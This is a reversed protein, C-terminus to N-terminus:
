CAASIEEQLFRRNTDSDGSVELAALIAANERVGRLRTENALWQALPEGRLRLAATRRAEALACVLVARSAAPDLGASLFRVLAARRREDDSPPPSASGTNNVVSYDDAKM